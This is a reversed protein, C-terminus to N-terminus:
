VMGPKASRGLKIEVADVTQLHEDTVSYRNPVYEFIYRFALEMSEPLIGGEGSSMATRVAASGRVLAIKAEKSLAGFSMHTILIPLEIRLPHKAEPGIVTETKVPDHDNLPLKAIQAGSTDTGTAGSGSGTEGDGEYYYERGNGCVPCTWTEPLDAFAATEIEEDYMYGCIACVYVAM